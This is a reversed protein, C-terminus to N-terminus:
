MLDAIKLVERIAEYSKAAYPAIASQAVWKAEVIGEEKQPKLLDASTGNMKYWATRKLFEEGRQEYIHYTDCIKDGLTLQKLGTEEMVERLACDEIQEGADLKGKPLDWKGRRFIMLIEGRENYAVGGAAVIPLYMAHLQDLLSAESVDEIIAGPTGPRDLFKLAQSYSRLTAGSFFEYTEAVPNAALYAEHDTTLILPKDAYYIKQSFIM